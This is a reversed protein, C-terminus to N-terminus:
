AIRPAPRDVRDLLALVHAPGSRGPARWAEAVDRIVGPPVGRALADVLISESPGIESGAAVLVLTLPLSTVAIGGVTVVHESVSRRSYHAVAPPTVRLHSGRDGIVDIRDHDRFRPVGHLRAAAGHSVAIVGPLLTAAMAATRFTPSIGAVAVIRPYPRYLSGEALLRRVVATSIGAQRVQTISAVGHQRRLLGFLERPGGHRSM